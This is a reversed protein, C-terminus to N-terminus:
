IVGTLLHTYEVAIYTTVGATQLNVHNQKKSKSIQVEVELIMGQSRNWTVNTDFININTIPYQLEYTCHHDILKLTDRKVHTTITQAATEGPQYWSFCWLEAHSAGKSPFGNVDLLIGECPCSMCFALRHWPTMMYPPLSINGIVYM